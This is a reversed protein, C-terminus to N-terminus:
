PRDAQASGCAAHEDLGLATLRPACGARAQPGAHHARPRVAPRSTRLRTSRARGLGVGHPTPRLERSGPIRLPAGAAKRGTPKYPASAAHEDLGLATLRPACSAHAHPGAHHARPRVAPRSTFLSTRSTSGAGGGRVRHSAGSGVRRLDTARQGWADVLSPPGVTHVFDGHAPANDLSQAPRTDTEALHKEREGGRARAPYPVPVCPTDM